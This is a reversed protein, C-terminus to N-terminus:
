QGPNTLGHKQMLTKIRKESVKLGGKNVEEAVRKIGFQPNRGKVGRIADLVVGEPIASESGGPQPQSLTALKASSAPTSSFSPTTIFPFTPAPTPAAPNPADKV